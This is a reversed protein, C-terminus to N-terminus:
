TAAAHQACMGHGTRVKDHPDALGNRILFDLAQTVEADGLDGALGRLASAAGLRTSVDGDQPAPLAAPLALPSYYMSSMAYPAYTLDGDQLQPSFCSPLCDLSPLTVYAHCHAAPMSACLCSRKYDFSMAYIPRLRSPLGHM